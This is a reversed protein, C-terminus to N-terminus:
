TIHQLTARLLSTAKSVSQEMSQSRLYRYVSGRFDDDTEIRDLFAETRNLTRIIAKDHETPEISM